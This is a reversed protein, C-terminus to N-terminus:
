LYDQPNIYANFPAVPIRATACNSSPRIDGFRVISVGQSAYVTFHLHPGTSFGTNGSYGIIQGRSVMAGESVSVVDLHAYLTTLGNSHRVLVWKGYSYCGAYADTNGVGVVEGGEASMVKTGISAGMDIGNHGSGNYAGTKAFDTQGFEQTIRMKELPAGLVGKQKAPISAPDIAVRLRSEFDLLERAFQERQKEKEALIKKFNQEKNKTLALLTEKEKQRNAVIIKQDRLSAQLSVSEAREATEREKYQELNQKLARLEDASEKVLARLRNISDLEDLFGSITRASLFAEPFTKTELEDASRFLKAIAGNLEVIDSNKNQIESLLEKIRLTSRDIKNNTVRIDAELKKRTIDISRITGALTQKEGALSTIEKNYQEIEKSLNEIAQNKEEINKKLEDISQASASPLSIVILFVFPTVIRLFASTTIRIM